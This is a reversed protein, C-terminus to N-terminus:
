RRMTSEYRNLKRGIDIFNYNENKYLNEIEEKETNTLRINM